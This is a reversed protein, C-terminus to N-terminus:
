PRVFTLAPQAADRMFPGGSGSVWLKVFFKAGDPNVLPTYFSTISLTKTGNAIQSSYVSISKGTLYQDSISSPEANNIARDLWSCEGPNLNEGQAGSPGSAKTFFVDVTPQMVVGKPNAFFESFTNIQMSGGGRCIMPYSEAFSATSALGLLFVFFLNQTSIKM